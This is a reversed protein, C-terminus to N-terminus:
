LVVPLQHTKAKAPPKVNTIVSNVTLQCLQFAATRFGMSANRSSYDLEIKIEIYNIIKSLQFDRPNEGLCIM